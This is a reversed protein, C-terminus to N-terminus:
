VKLASLADLKGDALPLRTADTTLHPVAVTVLRTIETITFNPM